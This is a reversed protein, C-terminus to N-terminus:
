RLSHYELRSSALSCQLRRSPRIASFGQATGDDEGGGRRGLGSKCAIVGGGKIGTDAGPRALLGPTNRM